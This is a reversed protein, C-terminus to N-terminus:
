FKWKMRLMARSSPFGGVNGQETEVSGVGGLLSTEAKPPAQREYQPPMPRLRFAEQDQRGCVVVEDAAASTPSCAHNTSPERPRPLVPGAVAAQMAVLLIM